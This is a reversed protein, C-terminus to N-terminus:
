ITTKQASVINPSQVPRVKIAGDVIEALDARGEAYYDRAILYLNDGPKVLKSPSLKVVVPALDLPLLNDLADETIQVLPIQATLGTHKFRGNVISYLLSLPSPRGNSDAQDHPVRADDGLAGTYLAFTSNDARYSDIEDPDAPFGEQADAGTFPVILPIGAEGTHDPLFSNHTVDVLTYLAGLHGQKSNLAVARFVEATSGRRAATIAEPSRIGSTISGGWAACANLVDAIQKEIEDKDAYEVAM